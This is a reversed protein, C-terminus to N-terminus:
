SVPPEGSRLWGTISIRRHPAAPSVASVSHLQPVRFLDLSNFCPVHGSVQDPQPGHFLLLGGFDPRWNPTLGYVYAALRNKGAVNDDHCTLFDGPGYATAQGDTFSLEAHATITRLLQLMPESSMLAAFAHLPDSGRASDPVRLGEYRYQFRSRAIEHVEKDLEARREHSINARTDRDLEVVGERTNMLHWWDAREALNDYLAELGDPELFSHIRVRGEHAYTGALAAVDLNPNLRFPPALDKELASRQM